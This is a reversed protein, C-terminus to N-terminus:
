MTVLPVGNSHNCLTLVGQDCSLEGNIMRSVQQPCAGPM